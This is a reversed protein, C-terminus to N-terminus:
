SKYFTRQKEKERKREDSATININKMLLVEGGLFISLCVGKPELCKVKLFTAIDGKMLVFYTFSSFFNDGVLIVNNQVCLRISFTAKLSYLVLNHSIKPM